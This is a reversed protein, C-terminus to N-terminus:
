LPQEEKKIHPKSKEATHCGLAPDRKGKKYM